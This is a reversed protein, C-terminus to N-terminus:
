GRLNLKLGARQAFNGAERTEAVWEPRQKPIELFKDSIFRAFNYFNSTRQIIVRILTM